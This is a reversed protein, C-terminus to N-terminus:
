MGRNLLDLEYDASKRWRRDTAAAQFYKKAEALKGLKKSAVGAEFNAAGKFKRTFKLCAQAADLGEQYRGIKNHAEALRYYAEDYNEKVTIAMEFAQIANEVQGDSMYAVGLSNFAKYYDPKVQTAMTYYKIANKVDKNRSYSLALMYVNTERQPNIEVAKLYSDVAGSYNKKDYYAKGMAAYASYNTPDVEVAKQYAAIADDYKRQKALALGKGQHASSNSPDLAISKDYAAVAQDFQGQKTLTNGDNYALKADNMKKAYEQDANLATKLTGIEAQLADYKKKLKNYEDPTIGQASMQVNLQKLEKVKADYQAKKEQIGQSFVVGLLCLCVVFSMFFKSAYRTWM